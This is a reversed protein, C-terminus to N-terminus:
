LSLIHFSQKVKVGHFSIDHNLEIEEFYLPDFIFNSWYYLKYALTSFLKIKM